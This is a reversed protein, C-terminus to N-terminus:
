GMKQNKKRRTTKKKSPKQEMAPEPVKTLETYQEWLAKVKERLTTATAVFHNGYRMNVPGTIAFDPLLIATDEQQIDHLTLREGFPNEKLWTSAVPSKESSLDSVITLHEIRWVSGLGDMRAWTLKMWKDIVEAAQDPLSPAVIMIDVGNYRAVLPGLLESLSLDGYGEFQTTGGDKIAYRLERLHRQACCPEILFM